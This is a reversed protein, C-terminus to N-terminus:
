SAVDGGQHPQHGRKRVFAILKAVHRNEVPDAANIQLRTGPTEITLTYARADPMASSRTSQKPQAAAAPLAECLRQLEQADAADLQASEVVIPKALGPVYAFGGDITLEIRISVTM